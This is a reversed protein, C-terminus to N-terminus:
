HPWCCSSSSSLWFLESKDSVVEDGAVSKANALQSKAAAAASFPRTPEDLLHEDRASSLTAATPWNAAAAGGFTLPPM